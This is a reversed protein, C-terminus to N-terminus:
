WNNKSYGLSNLFMARCVRQKFNSENKLFYQFTQNKKYGNASVNAMRRSISVNEVNEKIFLKQQVYDKEWFSSRIFERQDASIKTSCNPKCSCENRLNSYKEKRKQKVKQKQQEKKTTKNSGTPEEDCIINPSAVDIEDIYEIQINQTADFVLVAENLDIQGEQVEVENLVDVNGINIQLDESSSGYFKLLDM